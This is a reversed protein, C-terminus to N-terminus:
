GEQSEVEDASAEESRNKEKRKLARHSVNRSLRIRICFATATAFWSGCTRVREVEWEVGNLM